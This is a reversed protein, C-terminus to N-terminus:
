RNFIVEQTYNNYKKIPCNPDKIIIDIINSLSDQNIALKNSLDTLSLRKYLKSYNLFQNNLLEQYINFIMVKINPFDENKIEKVFELIKNSAGHFSLIKYSNLIIYIRKLFTFYRNIRASLEDLIYKDLNDDIENKLMALLKLFNEINTESLNEKILNSYRRQYVQQHSELESIIKNRLIDFESFETELNYILQHEKIIIMASSVKELASKFDEQEIKKSIITKYYHLEDVLDRRKKYQELKKEFSM